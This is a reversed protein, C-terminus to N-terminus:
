DPTSSGPHDDAFRQEPQKSLAQWIVAEAPEPLEPRLSRPLAPPDMTVKLALEALSDAEFPMQGTVLEYLLAGLSYQDSAASVQGLRLQEPAIYAPTGLLRSTSTLKTRTEDLLRAISFDALQANGQDDLLVNQPKIDRHIIGHAHAYDLTSALQALYRDAEALPQRGMALRTALTGGSLYPMVMYTLGDEEGAALVSVINPHRLRQLMEAERAFRTRFTARDAASMQWPLLLVKIAVGDPQDTADNLPRGFFVAGTLGIGLVRELRYGAIERGILAEPGETDPSLPYGKRCIEQALWRATRAPTM